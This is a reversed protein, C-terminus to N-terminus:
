RIEVVEQRDGELACHQLEGRQQCSCSVDSLASFSESAKFRTNGSLLSAVHGNDSFIHKLSM